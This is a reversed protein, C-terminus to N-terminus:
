HAGLVQAARPVEQMEVWEDVLGTRPIRALSAPDACNVGLVGNCGVFGRQM